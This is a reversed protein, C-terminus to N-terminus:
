KKVNKRYIRKGYIFQNAKKIGVLTTVGVKFIEGPSFDPLEINAKIKTERSVRVHTTRKKAM